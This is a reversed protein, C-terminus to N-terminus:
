ARIRSESQWGSKGCNSTGRVQFEYRVGNKLKKVWTSADDDTTIYKWKKTGAIRYRIEVKHARYSDEWILLVKGNNYADRSPHKITPYRYWVWDPKSPKKVISCDYNLSPKSAAEAKSASWVGFAIAGLAITWFLLKWFRFPMNCEECEQDPRM